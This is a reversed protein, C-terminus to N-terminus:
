EATPSPVPIAFRALRAQEQAASVRVLYSHWDVPKWLEIAQETAYLVISGGKEPLLELRRIPEPITLRFVQGHRELRCEWRSALLRRRDELSIAVEEGADGALSDAEAKKGAPLLRLAPVGLIWGMVGPVSTKVSRLWGVAEQISGPITLRHGEAVTVVSVLSGEADVSRTGRAM